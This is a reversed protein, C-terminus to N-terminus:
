MKVLGFGFLRGILVIPKNLNQALGLHLGDSIANILQEQHGKPIDPFVPFCTSNISIASLKAV